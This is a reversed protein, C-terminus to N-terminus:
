KPLYQTEVWEYLEYLEPPGKRKVLKITKKPVTIIKNSVDTYNGGYSSSYKEFSYTTLKAQLEKLQEKSVLYEQYGEIPVNDIGKYHVLGNETIILKYAACEGRCPTKEIQIIIKEKPTVSCSLFFFFLTNIIFYNIGKM